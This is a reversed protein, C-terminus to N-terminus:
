ESLTTGVYYHALIKDYTYGAEAMGKAGYQSLGIGHGHGRGDFTFSGRPASQSAASIYVSSGAGVASVRSGLQVASGAGVAYAGYLLSPVVRSGSLASVAKNGTNEERIYYYQSKLGLVTRCKEFTVTHSGETGDFRLKRVREDKEGREVVAINTVRGINVGVNALKQAVEEATYTVSWVAVNESDEYPDDVSQLYDLGAGGGWASYVDATKGGSSACFFTQAIKGNYMIVRGSTEDAARRTAQTEGAIGKYAQTRTDDTVDIGYKDYSTVTMAYTRAIVAQAKLAEIPWSAYMESGVVCAVYDDPSVLNVVAIADAHIRDAMIYGYYSRGLVNVASGNASGFAFIEIDHRFVINYGAASVMVAKTDLSVPVFEMGTFALDGVSHAAEEASAYLGTMVYSAGDIYGGYAYVGAARLERAKLVAHELTDYVQVSRLYAGGGKEVVVDSGSITMQPYFTHDYVHGIRIDGSVAASFSDKAANGFYLGVKINSQLATDAFAACSGALVSLGILASLIKKWM